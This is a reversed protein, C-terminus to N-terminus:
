EIAVSALVSPFRPSNQHVFCFDHLVHVFQAQNRHKASRGCFLGDGDGVGDQGAADVNQFDGHGHGAGDADDLLECIM